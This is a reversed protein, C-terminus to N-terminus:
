LVMMTECCILVRRERLYLYVFIVSLQLYAQGLWESAIGIDIDRCYFFMMQVRVIMTKNINSVINGCVKLVVGRRYGWKSDDFVKTTTICGHWWDFACTSMIWIWSNRYWDWSNCIWLYGNCCIALPQQMTNAMRWRRTEVRQWSVGVDLNRITIFIRPLEVEDASDM